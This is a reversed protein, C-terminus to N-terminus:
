ENAASPAPRVQNEPTNAAMSATSCHPWSKRRSACARIVRVFTFRVAPGEM